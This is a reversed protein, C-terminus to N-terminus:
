KEYSERCIDVDFSTRNSSALPIFLKFTKIRALQKKIFLFSMGFLLADITLISILV